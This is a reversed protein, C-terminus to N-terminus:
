GPSPQPRRGFPRFPQGGGEYFRSFFEVYHLRLAQVMPSFTALALNLLHLLVAVFVGLLLPVSVALHNAVEALYVSALGVAALRLYSLVHGFSGLLELPGTLLGMLGRTSITVVFMVAVVAMAPTRVQGPLLDVATAAIAALGCLLFFTGARELLTRPQRLRGAQRMGLVLGLLIHTVGIGLAFLLLTGLEDPGHRYFWLAPLGLKHGLSGLAEGYLLGFLMSWAGSALLISGIDRVLPRTSGRRRLVAGLGAVIAGYVLDGVMVGFLLPLAAAMLTSPDLSGSRPLGLFSVLRQYPRVPPPNDLLVPPEGAVAADLKTVVVGADVRALATRLTDIDRRPLWGTLSATHATRGALAVAELCDLEGTAAAWRQRWDPALEATRGALSRWARALEDPLAALRNGLETAAHAPSMQEYGPPLPVHRIHERALLTRLEAVLTHPAVLVCGMTQDGTPAATLRFRDGAAAHLAARLTGITDADPTDVVLVITALGLRTLDREGLLSLEPDVLLLALADHYRRATEYEGQLSGIRDLLPGLGPGLRGLREAPVAVTAPRLWDKDAAVSSAEEALGLLAALDAAEARLGAMRHADGPGPGAPTMDLKQHAVDTLQVAALRHLEAIVAPLQALRTLIQVPTMGILM